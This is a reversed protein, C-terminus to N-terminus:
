SPLNQKCVEFLIKYFSDVFEEESKSEKLSDWDVNSFEENLKEFNAKSFNFQSLCQEKSVQQHTIEEPTISSQHCSFNYGLNITVLDHDSMTTDEAYM